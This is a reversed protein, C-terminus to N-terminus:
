WRKNSFHFKQKFNKVKSYQHKKKLYLYSKNRLSEILTNDREPHFTDHFFLADQVTYCKLGMERIRWSLDVDEMYMFFQEDFGQTLQYTEYPILLACGSCWDTEGTQPDYVKPHEQPFQRAEFLGKKGKAFRLLNLLMDPHPVGDPNLALYYQFLESAMMANHGAGFGINEGM